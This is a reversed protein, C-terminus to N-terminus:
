YCKILCAYILLIALQLILKARVEVNDIEIPSNLHPHNSVNGTRFLLLYTYVRQVNLLKVECQGWGVSYM